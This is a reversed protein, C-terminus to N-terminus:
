TPLRTHVQHLSACNNAHVNKNVGEWGGGVGGGGRKGYISCVIPSASDQTHRNFHRQGACVNQMCSNAGNNVQWFFLNKGCGVANIAIGVVGGM